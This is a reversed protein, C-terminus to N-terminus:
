DCLIILALKGEHNKEWELYLNKEINEFDETFRQRVAQDFEKNPKFWRLLCEKPLSKERDYALM